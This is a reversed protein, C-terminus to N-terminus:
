WASRNRFKVVVFLHIALLEFYGLNHLSKLVEGVFIKEPGDEVLMMLNTMGWNLYGLLFYLIWSINIWRAPGSLEMCPDVVRNAEVLLGIALIGPALLSYNWLSRELGTRWLEHVFLTHGILLAIILATVGYAVWFLRKDTIRQGFAVWMAVLAGPAYIFNTVVNWRGITILWYNSIDCISIWLIPLLLAIEWKGHIWRSLPLVFILSLYLMRGLDGSGSVSLLEELM